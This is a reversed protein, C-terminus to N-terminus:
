NKGGVIKDIAGDKVYIQISCKAALEEDHTV